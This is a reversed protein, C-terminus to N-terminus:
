NEINCSKKDVKPKIKPSVKIGATWSQISIPPRTYASCHVHKLNTSPDFRHCHQSIISNVRHLRKAFSLHFLCHCHCIGPSSERCTVSSFSSSLRSLFLRSIVIELNSPQEESACNIQFYISIQDGGSCNFAIMTSQIGIVIDRIDIFRNHFFREDCNKWDGISM